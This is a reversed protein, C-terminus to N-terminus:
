DCLDAAVYYILVDFTIMCEEDTFYRIDPKFFLLWKDKISSFVSRQASMRHANYLPNVLVRFSLVNFIRVRMQPHPNKSYMATKSNREVVSDPKRLNKDTFICSVIFRERLKRYDNITISINDYYKM